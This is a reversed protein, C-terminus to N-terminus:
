KWIPKAYIRLSESVIKNACFIRLIWAECVSYKYTAKNCEFPVIITWTLKLYHSADCMERLILLDSRKTNNIYTLYAANHIM